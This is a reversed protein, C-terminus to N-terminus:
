QDLAENEDALMILASQYLGPSFTNILEFSPEIM